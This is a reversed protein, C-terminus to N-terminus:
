FLGFKSGSIRTVALAESPLNKKENKAIAKVPAPEVRADASLARARKTIEQLFATNPVSLNRELLAAIM